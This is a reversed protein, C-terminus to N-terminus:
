QMPNHAYTHKLTHTHTQQLAGGSPCVTLGQDAHHLDGPLGESNKSRNKEEQM